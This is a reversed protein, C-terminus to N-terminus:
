SFSEIMPIRGRFWERPSQEGKLIAIPGQVYAHWLAESALLTRADLMLKDNVDSMLDDFRKQMLTPDEKM